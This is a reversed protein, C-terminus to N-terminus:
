RKTRTKTDILALRILEVMARRAAEADRNAIAHYVAEHDPLPDRPLARHRQKFLTTWRVAAGISSSLTMLPANRSAELIANHFAQDAERGEPAALSHKKMEEIAHGMRALDRGDRRNAALAAAAPEVIGRLEFLDALFDEGPETEFMWGLVDPDLLNWRNRPSVRTGIKPRSSVLGKATLTRIAERYASRSIHHQEAYEIEGLLTDGPRFVGSVIGIGIERTISGHIKPSTKAPKPKTSTQSPTLRDVGAAIYAPVNRFSPRTEARM